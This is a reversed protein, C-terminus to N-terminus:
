PRSGGPGGGKQLVLKDGLPHEAVGGGAKPRTSHSEIHQTVISHREGGSASRTPHSGGVSLTNFCNTGTERMEKVVCYYETSPQAAKLGTRKLDEQVERKAVSLYLLGGSM